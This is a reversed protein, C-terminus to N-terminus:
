FRPRLLRQEIHRLRRMTKPYTHKLFTVPQRLTASLQYFIALHYKRLKFSIRSLTVYIDYHTGRDDVDKLLKLAELECEFAEQLQGRQALLAVLVNQYTAQVFASRTNQGLYHVYAPDHHRAEDYYVDIAARILQEATDLDNHVIFYLRGLAYRARGQEYILDQEGLFEIAEQFCAAAREFDGASTSVWGQVIHPGLATRYVGLQKAYAALQDVLAQAEALEGVIRHMNNHVFLTRMIYFPAEALIFCEIASRAHYHASQERLAIQEVNCLVYHHLGEEFPMNKGRLRKLAAHQMQRIEGLKKYRIYAWGLASQFRSWARLSLKELEGSQLVPEALWRWGTWGYAIQYYEFLYVCLWNRSPQEESDSVRRWEPHDLYTRLKKVVRRYLKLASFYEARCMQQHAQQLEQWTILARDVETAAM